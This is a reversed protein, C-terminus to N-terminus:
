RHAQMLAYVGVFVLLAFVTGSNQGYKPTNMFQRANQHM